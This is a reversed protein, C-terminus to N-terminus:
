DRRRCLMLGSKAPMHFFFLVFSSLRSKSCLHSVIHSFGSSCTSKEWGEVLRFRGPIRCLSMGLIDRFRNIEKREQLRESIQSKTSPVLSLNTPSCFNCFFSAVAWPKKCFLCFLLFVYWALHYVKACTKPWCSWMSGTIPHAVLDKM